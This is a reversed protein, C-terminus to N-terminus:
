YEFKKINNRGNNKATYLAKDASKFAESFNKSKDPTLNVGISVTINIYKTTSIFFHHKEVNKLVRELVQMVSNHKEKSKHILLIFEEGGYRIIADENDIRITNKIIQAVEKLIIDGINHGYIDNVKKFYDIDIVAVAHTKLNIDNENELLYNRNYVNTLKDVFASQKVKNYKIMQYLLVLLFVIIIMLIFIIANEMLDVIDNITEIKKLSFDIVLLLEVENDKLIPVIYSLSLSKILKHKILQPQKSKYVDFWLKSDVDFKQNVAAKESPISADALFRFKNNTDKYLVYAYKINNTILLKTKKEISNQLQSSKKIDQIYNDSKYLLKKIADASNQTIVFVDSTSIKFMEEEIEKELNITKYLLFLLISSIVVSLILQQRSNKILNIKAM